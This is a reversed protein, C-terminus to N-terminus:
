ELESAEGRMKANRPLKFRLGVGLPEIVVLDDFLEGCGNARLCACEEEEESDRQKAGLAITVSGGELERAVRAECEAVGLSELCVAHVLTRHTRTTHKTHNAQGTNYTGHGTGFYM